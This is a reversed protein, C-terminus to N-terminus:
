THAVHESHGELYRSGVYDLDPDLRIRICFPDPDAVSCVSCVAAIEGLGKGAFVLAGIESESLIIGYAQQGDRNNLITSYTWSTKVCSIQYCVIYCSDLSRPCIACFM